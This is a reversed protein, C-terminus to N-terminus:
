AKPLKLDVTWPPNSPLYHVDRIAANLMLTQRGFELETDLDLVEPFGSRMDNETEIADKGLVAKDEKWTVLKAGHGEHIHGFCYLLPRARSSATMLADCGVNAKMRGGGGVEDLIGKPPGHTMMIDVSPFDPVTVGPIKKVGYLVHEPPNFRDEDREYPFAYGCFEPQYPSAYITFKAGNKLTFTHVGEDLYTIGAEKAVDGTM